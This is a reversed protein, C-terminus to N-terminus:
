LNPTNTMLIDEIMNETAPSCPQIQQPEVNDYWSEIGHFEIDHSVLDLFNDFSM